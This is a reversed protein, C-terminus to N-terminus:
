ALTQGSQHAGTEFHKHSSKKEHFYHTLINAITCEDSLGAFGSTCLGIKILKGNTSMYETAFLKESTDTWEMIPSESAFESSAPHSARIDAAMYIGDRLRAIVWYTM